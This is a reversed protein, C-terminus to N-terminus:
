PGARGPSPSIALIGGTIFAVLWEGEAPGTQSTAAPHQPWRVETFAGSQHLGLLGLMNAFAFRVRDEDLDPLARGLAALYRGEVPHVQDAFIQRVQPDPEGVVRGIFRAVHRGDTLDLGPEVFARVLAALTPPEPASELEDLLRRREDNVAHMTQEVVARLLAEKSGFHYNVSAINTGAAETLARLSTATIGREGFLRVATEVLRERTSTGERATPVRDRGAV